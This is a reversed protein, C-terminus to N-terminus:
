ALALSCASMDIYKISESVEDVAEDDMEFATAISAAPNFDTEV